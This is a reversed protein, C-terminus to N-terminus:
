VSAEPDSTANPKFIAGSVVRRIGDKLVSTNFNVLLGLPLRKLKLYTLLQAQHIPLLETVAKLELILQNEILFDIRYGFNLRSGKYHIPLDIQREFILGNQNLEFALAEEYVSELLGPGLERHVEICLGIVRHSLSNLGAKYNEDTKM